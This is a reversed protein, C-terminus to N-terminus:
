TQKRGTPAPQPESERGRSRRRAAINVNNVVDNVGPMAWAIEGVDRKLRKHPVTGTLTARGGESRIEVDNTGPLLDLAEYIFEELEQDNTPGLPQGRRMAVAALLAPATIGPPVEYGGFVPFAGFSGAHGPMSQGTGSGASGQGFPNGPAPSPAAMGGFGYPQPTFGYPASPIGFPSFTPGSQGAGPTSATPLYPSGFGETMMGLPRSGLGIPTQFLGFGQSPGAFPMSPWMPSSSGFFPETM